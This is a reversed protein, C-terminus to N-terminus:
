VDSELKRLSESLSDHTNSLMSLIDVLITIRDDIASDDHTLNFIISNLDGITTKARERQIDVYQM